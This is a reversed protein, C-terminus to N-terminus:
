DELSARGFGVMIGILLGFLTGLGSITLAARIGVPPIFSWWDIHMVGVVLMFDWSALLWVAVIAALWLVFKM